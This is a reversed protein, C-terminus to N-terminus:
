KTTEPETTGLVSLVDNPKLVDDATLPIHRQLQGDVVRSLEFTPVSRRGRVVFREAVFGGAM